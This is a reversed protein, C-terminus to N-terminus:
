STASVYEPQQYRSETGDAGKDDATDFNDDECVTDIADGVETDPSLGFKPARGEAAM